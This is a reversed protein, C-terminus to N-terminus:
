HLPYCVNAVDSSWCARCAGCKNGQRNAPCIHGSENGHRAVTSTLPWATPAAGDVMTASLRIVLNAPVVGGDRVFDRVLKAERTPLWHRLGPTARAVACIKALHERSQLDGSDHWRHYPPLKGSTHEATLLTVMADVWSEHGIGALRKAQSRQTSAFQYNGRLAYCKSCTSGEVRALKSGTICAQAPMGYSTGPMKSPHGISGAVEVAEAIATRSM